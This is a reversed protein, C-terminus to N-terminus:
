RSEEHSVTVMRDGELKAERFGMENADVLMVNGVLLQTGGMAVIREIRGPQNMRVFCLDGNFSLNSDSQYIKPQKKSDTAESNRLILIDRGAEGRDVRVAVGEAPEGNTMIPIREVSLVTPSGEYPELVSVFTSELPAKDSKRRVMVRPIWTEDLSSYGGAVVWGEALGALADETVDTYRFHLDRPEPLLGYRDEITWDVWWGPAAESDIQFNRMLTGQGYDKGPALKLGNATVTGFHSHTFKAHDTGGKVRFIDLVYFDEPSLDILCLTREFRAGDIMDPASVRIAHFMEGDALFTTEGQADNLNKGDMVVTNHAATSKYWGSFDGKWGDFQVPPYGFDPMLDLGKAFLGVNMGDAHSHGGGTDYDIWLARANKGEGSRLVAVRWEEKNVSALNPQPGRQDIVEQVNAQFAAPSEEFLDFPLGEVKNGNAQYLAQVYAPEATREYLRWLFRYTSPELGPRSPFLVGKYVDHAAAFWGTDGSQPYYRNLCFTDIHFRYTEKLRPNRDLIEAFLGEEMRAYLELFEAMSQIVFASYNALGKEGTIGDVATAKALMTDLMGLVEERNDPWGLVTHIVTLAIEARPYNSHIKGPNAIADRLVRDEINRQIDAFSTKPNEPGHNEAKKSLFDVLSPDEALGEFVQDYALVMERTEECSDHWTSIYGASGPGEYLVGERQFDFTPYLDAVRDLLIGAKHAYEPSETLVYAAALNKIGGLVVQKWQGYILYTAVFWWRNEGDSYGEGDDVGFTHLPDNPDPHDSNVLLSRDAQSPDFVGAEDLGSRYFAHFDNKPFYEDCHPCQVKWPHTLADIKWNYMPVGEECSPCHGNSWVMWSRKLTNGFMLGWLEDDSMKRWPEAERIARDRVQAAWDFQAINARAKEVLPNPYFASSTKQPSEAYAALTLIASVASLVSLCPLQRRGQAPGIPHETTETM